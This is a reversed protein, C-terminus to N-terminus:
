DNAAEAPNAPVRKYIVRRDRMGGTWELRSEWRLKEGEPRSGTLAYPKAERESSADRNADRGIAPGSGLLPPMGTGPGALGVSAAGLTAALALSTMWIKKM